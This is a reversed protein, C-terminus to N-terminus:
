HSWLVPNIWNESFCLIGKAANYNDKFQRAAARTRRDNLNTALLEFPDNLEGFRAVKLRSLSLDSIAYEASTLHYVRLFEASPPPVVEASGTRRDYGAQVWQERFEKRMPM